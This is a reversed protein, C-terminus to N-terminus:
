FSAVSVFAILSFHEFTLSCRPPFFLLQSPPFPAQEASRPGPRRLQACCPAPGVERVHGTDGAAGQEAPVHKSRCPQVRQGVDRTSPQERAIHFEARRIEGLHCTLGTLMTTDGRDGLQGGTSGM